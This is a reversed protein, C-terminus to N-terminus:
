VCEVKRRGYIGLALGAVCLVPMSWHLAAGTILSAAVYLGAMWFLAFGVTTLLACIKRARSGAGAAFEPRGINPKQLNDLAM